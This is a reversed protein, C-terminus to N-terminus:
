SNGGGRDSSHNTHNDQHDQNQSAQNNTKFLIKLILLYVLNQSAVHFNTIGLEWGGEDENTVLINSFWTQLMTKDSGHNEQNGQHGQNSVM